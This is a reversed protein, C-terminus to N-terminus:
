VPCTKDLGYKILYALLGIIIPLVIAPIGSAFAPILALLVMKIINKWDLDGEIGRVVLCFVRKVKRKLRRFRFRLWEPLISKEKISQIYNLQLSNMEELEDNLDLVANETQLYEEMFPSFIERDIYNYIATGDRESLSKAESEIYFLLKDTIEMENKLLFDSM